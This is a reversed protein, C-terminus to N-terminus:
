LEARLVKEIGNIKSIAKLVERSVPQDVTLAMLQAEGVVKRGVQMSGININRKGLLTAVKGIMGPRDEHKVLLIKGKPVLDLTYDEISVIRAEEGGLLVGKVETEDKNSKVKLIIMNGFKEADERRGETVRIGRNKAVIPANLFNVRETLIPSLLGSLASNTLASLEGVDLLKGCYTISVDNIRGEILQISFRGLSEALPLYNKLQDLVERSFVPMNVANSPAKNELVKIVEECVIISAFRQAEETSAGLHPTAVVNDLKLIPNNLPPEVEFVDLAAGGVKGSKLGKYLAKEDIIGGRACNILFVGDRMRQIEKEGIMGRTQETLPVHVTIFDSGEIIEDFDAIKVGLEEVSKKSIYPDYALIEMDFAKAKRAVQSGIRGLGIIGLVKGRLELGLFKSKEWRGSKLSSDALPINRAMALMLGLTHEAVTISSSEPANVVVIGRETAAELDINDTGTGARGIVKLKEAVYIIDRTVKTKSRVLLADVGRIKKMLQEKSLDTSVEVKAVRRLLEIGAEHLEDSVLIKM